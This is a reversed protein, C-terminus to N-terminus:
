LTLPDSPQNVSDRNQNTGSQGVIGNKRQLPQLPYSAILIAYSRLRNARGEPLYTSLSDMERHVIGRM